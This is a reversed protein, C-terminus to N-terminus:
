AQGGSLSDIWGQFIEVCLTNLSKHQRAAEQKLRDHIDNTTRVTLVSIEDKVIEGTGRCKDCVVM